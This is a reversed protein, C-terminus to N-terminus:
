RPGTWRRKAPDAEISGLRRLLETREARWASQRLLWNEQRYRAERLRARLRTVTVKLRLNEEEVVRLREAQEQQAALLAADWPM